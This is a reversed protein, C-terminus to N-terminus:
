LFNNAAADWTGQVTGAMPVMQWHMNSGSGATVHQQSTNSPGAAPVHQLGCKNAAAAIRGVNSCWQGFVAAAGSSAAARHHWQLCHGTESSAFSSFCSGSISGGVESHNIIYEVANEGLTDYLPVCQYSMRNCAQLPCRCHPNCPCTVVLFVPLPLPGHVSMCLLRRPCLQMCTAHATCRFGVAVSNHSMAQQQQQKHSRM